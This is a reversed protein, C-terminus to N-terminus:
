SFKLSFVGLWIVLIHFSRCHGWELGMNPLAIFPKKKKQIISGNPLGSHESPATWRPLVYEAEWHCYLNCIAKTCPSRFLRSQSFDVVQLKLLWRYCPISSLTTCGNAYIKYPSLCLNFYYVAWIYDKQTGQIIYHLLGNTVVPVCILVFFCNSHNTKALPTYIPEYLLSRWTLRIIFMSVSIFAPVRLVSDAPQCTLYKPTSIHSGHVLLFVKTCDETAYCM